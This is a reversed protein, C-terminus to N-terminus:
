STHCLRILRMFASTNKTMETHDQHWSKHQGIMWDANNIDVLSSRAVDCRSWNPLAKRVDGNASVKRNRVADLTLPM